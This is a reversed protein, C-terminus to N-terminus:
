YEVVQEVMEPTFWYECGSTKFKESKDLILIRAVVIERGLFKKQEPIFVDEGCDVNGKSDKNQEYWEKSKIRVVSGERIESIDVGYVPKSNKHKVSM